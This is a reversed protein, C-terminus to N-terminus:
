RRRAKAHSRMDKTAGFHDLLVDVLPAAGFRVVDTVPMDQQEQVAQVAARADSESHDLCNLAIGVVMSKHLPRMLTEHITVLEDLAPIPIQTHRLCRRDPQHCLVMAKPCAGHMLGLTVGSYSPHFIAGQGEIIIWEHNQHDMVMEEVAGSVFDGIVRDIAIGRGTIMVGTQGTPLFVADHGRRQLEHTMEIATIKKGINCDSGVTLVTKAAIGAARAMGVDLTEPPRRVDWIRVGRKRASESLEADDGLMTHLGNVIEMDREIADCLIARWAQPLKGGPTAVGILLMDPKASKLEELRSVIPIGNGVGILTELSQGAHDPDLVGVVEDRRYRIIGAATKATFADLQGAALIVIRRRQASTM